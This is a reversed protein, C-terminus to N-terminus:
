PRKRTNEENKALVHQFLSPIHINIARKNQYILRIIILLLNEQM